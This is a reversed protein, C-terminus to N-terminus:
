LAAPIRSILSHAVVLSHGNKNASSSSLIQGALHATEIKERRKPFIINIRVLIAPSQEALRFYCATSLGAFPSVHRSKWGCSVGRPAGASPCEQNDYALPPSKNFRQPLPVPGYVWTTHMYKHVYAPATLHFLVIHQLAGSGPLLVALRCDQTINCQM